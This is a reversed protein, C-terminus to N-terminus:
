LHVPSIAVDGRDEALDLAQELDAAVNGEPDDRVADLMRRWELLGGRDIAALM